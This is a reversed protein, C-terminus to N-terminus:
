SPILLLAAPQLVVAPARASCPRPSGCGLPCDADALPDGARRPARCRRPPRSRTTRRSIELSAVACQRPAAREFGLVPAVKKGRWRTTVLQKEASVLACLTSSRAVRAKSAGSSSQTSGARANTCCVRRRADGRGARAARFHAPEEGRRPLAPALLSHLEPLRDSSCCAALLFYRARGLCRGGGLRWSGSRPVAGRRALRRPATGREPLTARRAGSAPASRAVSARASASRSAAWVASFAGLAADRCGSLEGLRLALARAAPACAAASAAASRARQASSSRRAGGGARKAM